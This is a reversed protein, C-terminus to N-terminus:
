KLVGEVVKIRFHPLPRWRGVWQEHLFNVAIMKGEMTTERNMRAACCYVMYEVLKGVFELEPATVELLYEKEM